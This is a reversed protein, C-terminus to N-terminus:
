VECLVCALARTFSRLSFDVSCKPAYYENEMKGGFAIM